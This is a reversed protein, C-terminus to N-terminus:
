RQLDRLAEARRAVEAAAYPPLRLGLERRWAAWAREAEEPLLGAFRTVAKLALAEVQRDDIEWEVSAPLAPTLPVGADLAGPLRQRRLREREVLLREVETEQGLLTRGAEPGSVRVQRHLQLDAEAEETATGAVAVRRRAELIVLTAAAAHRTLWARGKLRVMGVLTLGGAPALTQAPTFSVALPNLPVPLRNRRM